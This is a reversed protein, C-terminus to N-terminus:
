FIMGERSPRLQVITKRYVVQTPKDLYHHFISLLQVRRFQHYSNGFTFSHSAVFSEYTAIYTPAYFNDTM